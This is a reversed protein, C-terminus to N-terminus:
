ARLSVPPPRQHLADDFLRTEAAFASQFLKASVKAPAAVSASPSAFVGSVGNGLTYQCGEDCCSKASFAPGNSPRHNVRKCCCKAHGRCCSLAADSSASIALPSLSAISLLVSLCAAFVSRVMRSTSVSGQMGQTEVIDHVAERSVCTSRNVAPLSAGCDQGHGRGYQYRDGYRRRIRRDGLSQRM